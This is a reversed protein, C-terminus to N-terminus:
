GLLAGILAGRIAGRVPHVGGYPHYDHHVHYDHYDHYGHDHYDHYHHDHYGHHYDHYDHYDHYHGHGYDMPHYGYFQTMSISILCLFVFLKLMQSYPNLHAPLVALKISFF